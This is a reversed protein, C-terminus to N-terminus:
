PAGDQWSDIDSAGHERLYAMPFVYGALTAKEVFAMTKGKMDAVNEIGGDKRVFVHGHYSSTGDPWLPRAIPEVGLKQISLAATFSGLFAGDMKEATFSEIINGYRSLITFRIELGTRERIHAAIPEYRKKQLFVNQEPILGITLEEAVVASSILLIVLLSFATALHRRM